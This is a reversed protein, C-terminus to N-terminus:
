RAFADLKRHGVGLRSASGCAPGLDRATRTAICRRTRDTAEVVVFELLVGLAALVRGDGRTLITLLADYVKRERRRVHELVEAM